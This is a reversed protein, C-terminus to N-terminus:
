KRENDRHMMDDAKDSLKRGADQVKGKLNGATEQARGENQLSTDGTMKGVAQKFKGSMKDSNMAM